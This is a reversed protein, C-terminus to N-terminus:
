QQHKMKYATCNKDSSPQAWIGQLVPLMMDRTRLASSSIRTACFATANESKSRETKCHRRVNAFVPISFKRYAYFACPNGCRGWYLSWFSMKAEHIQKNDQLFYNWFPIKLEEIGWSLEFLHPCIANRLWHVSKYTPTDHHVHKFWCSVQDMWWVELWTQATIAQIQWGSWLMVPCALLKDEMNLVSNQFYETVKSNRHRCLIAPKLHDLSTKSM